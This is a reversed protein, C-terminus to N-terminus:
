KSTIATSWASTTSTKPRASPSNPLLPQGGAGACKALGGCDGTECRGKGTHDFRCGTRAWFRGHWGPPASVTVTTGPGVPWGGGNILTSGLSGVWVTANCKNVFRFDRSSNPTGM